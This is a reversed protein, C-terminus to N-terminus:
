LAPGACRCANEPLDSRPTLLRLPNECVMRRIEEASFGLRHMKALYHGFGAVAPPNGAQGFDSSLIVNEVGVGRVQDRIEELRVPDPCLPTAAFFCHEILAGMRLAEKQLDISMATVSESAHTVVIRVVGLERATTILAMSEAPSLHGTALVKGGAAIMRLVEVCEGKLDRNNEATIRIPEYREPLPFATPPKGAGWLAIHHAAGYTPFFVVDVGARIASAVASPNIGGVPPNLAISSFFRPRGNFFRNLAYARGVTATTHEKLLVGAMGAEKASLALDFVDQARPVVDPASHVHIDIADKLLNEPNM